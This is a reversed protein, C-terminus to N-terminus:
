SGHCFLYSDDGVRVIGFGAAFVAMMFINNLEGTMFILVSTQETEIHKLNHKVQSIVM